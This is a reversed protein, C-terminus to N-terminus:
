LAILDVAQCDSGVNVAPDWDGGCWASFVETGNARGQVRLLRDIYPLHLTWPSLM